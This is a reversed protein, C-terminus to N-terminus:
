INTSMLMIIIIIMQNEVDREVSNLDYRSSPFTTLFIGVTMLKIGGGAPGSGLVRHASIPLELWEDM